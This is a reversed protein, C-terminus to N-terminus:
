RKKFRSLALRLMEVAKIGLGSLFLCAITFIMMLDGGTNPLTTTTTGKVELTFSLSKTNGALDQSTVTVTHTGLSLDTTPTWSWTGTADATTTGVITTDSHITITVTAL